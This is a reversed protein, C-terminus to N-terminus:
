KKDAGKEKYAADYDSFLGDVAKRDLGVQAWKDKQALVNKRLTDPTLGNDLGWRVVLGRDHKLLAALSEPSIATGPEMKLEPLNDLRPEIIQCSARKGVALQRSLTPMVKDLRISTNPKKFDRGNEFFDFGYVDNQAIARKGTAKIPIRLTFKTEDLLRAPEKPDEVLIIRPNEIYRRYLIKGDGSKLQFMSRTASLSDAKSPGGCPLVSLPKASWHGKSYTMAILLVSEDTREASVPAILSCLIVALAINAKMTLNREIPKAVPAM